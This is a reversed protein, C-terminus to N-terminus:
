KNYLLLLKKGDHELIVKFGNKISLRLADKVSQKVSYYTIHYLSEKGMKLIKADKLNLHNINLFITNTEIDRKYMSGNVFLKEM